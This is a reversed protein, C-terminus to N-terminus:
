VAWVLTEVDAHSLVETMLSLVSPDSSSSSSKNPEVVLEDNCCEVVVSVGRGRDIRCELAPVGQVGADAATADATAADAADTLLSACDSAAGKESVAETMLSLVTADSSSSSSKNSEVEARAGESRDVVAAGPVVVFFVACGFDDAVAAFLGECRYVAAFFFLVDLAM